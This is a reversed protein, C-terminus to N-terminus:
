LEVIQLPAPFSTPPAGDDWPVLQTGYLGAGDVSLEHTNVQCEIGCTDISLGYTSYEEPLPELKPDNPCRWWTGGCLYPRLCMSWSATAAEPSGSVLPLYCGLSVVAARWPTATCSTNEFYLDSCAQWVEGTTVDVYMEFKQGSPSTMSVGYHTPDTFGSALVPGWLGLVYSSSRPGIIDGNADAVYSTTPKQQLKEVTSELDSLADLREELYEVRAELLKLEATTACEEGAGLCTTTASSDTESGDSDAKSVDDISDPESVDDVITAGDKAVDNEPVQPGADLARGGCSGCLVLAVLWGLRGRSRAKRSRRGLIENEQEIQVQM